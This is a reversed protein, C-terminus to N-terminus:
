AEEIVTYDIQRNGAWTAFRDLVLKRRAADCRFTQEWILYQVDRACSQKIVVEVLGAEDKYQLTLGSGKRKIKFSHDKPEMRELYRDSVEAIAAEAQLRTTSPQRRGLKVMLRHWFTESALASRFAELAAKEGETGHADITTRHREPYLWFCITAAIMAVPIWVIIAPVFLPGIVKLLLSEPQRSALLFIALPAMVVYVGAWIIMSDFTM